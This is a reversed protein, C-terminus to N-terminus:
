NNYTLQIEGYSALNLINKTFYHINPSSKQRNESKLSKLNGHSSHIQIFGLSTQNPSCFTFSELEIIDQM